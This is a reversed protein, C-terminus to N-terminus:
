PLQTASSPLSNETHNGLSTKFGVQGPIDLQHYKKHAFLVTISFVTNLTTHPSSKFKQAPFFPSWLNHAFKSFPSCLSNQCLPLLFEGQDSLFACLSFLILRFLTLRCSKFFHPLFYLIGLKLFFTWSVSLRHSFNWPAVALGFSLLSLFSTSLEQM